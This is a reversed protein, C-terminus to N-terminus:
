QCYYGSVIFWQSGFDDVILLPQIRRMVDITDGWLRGYHICIHRWLTIKWAMKWITNRGNHGTVLAIGDIATSYISLSRDMFGDNTRQPPRSCPTHHPRVHHIKNINQERTIQPRIIFRAMKKPWKPGIGNWGGVLLVMVSSSSDLSLFSLVYVWYVWTPSTPRLNSSEIAAPM